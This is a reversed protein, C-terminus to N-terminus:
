RFLLRGSARRGCDTLSSLAGPGGRARPPQAAGPGGGPRRHGGGPGHLGHGRHDHGASGGAGRQVGLAAAMRARMRQREPAIRPQECIVVADVNVVEWGGSVLLDGVQALLEISDAGAYAPDRDPFYHGIDELGAAGLLADMVAHVLVDADSHGHLGDTERLRVGGLVLPREAGFRHADYGLGVRLASDAYETM